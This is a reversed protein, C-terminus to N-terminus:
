QIVLELRTQFMGRWVDENVATEYIKRKFLTPQDNYDKLKIVVSTRSTHKPHGNDTATIHFRYESKMEKDLKVLNTIWGTYTDISFMESAFESDSSFSYRLEGNRGKDADHATVKLISTGEDINEAINIVYSSSEFFPFNDNEDLVQVRIEVITSLPPNTDTEVLIGILHHEKEEFDLPSGLLVRGKNDVMFQPRENEPSESIIKYSLTQNPSFKLRTVVTGPLFNESIFYKDDKREYVPPTDKNSIFFVTLPVDSYLPTQGNDKARIFFQFM